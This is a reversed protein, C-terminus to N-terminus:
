HVLQPAHSAPRGALGAIPQWNGARCYGDVSLDALEGLDDGFAGQHLAVVLSHGRDRNLRAVSIRDLGAGHVLDVLVVVPTRRLARLARRPDRVVSVPIGRTTLARLLEEHAEPLRSLLLVEPASGSM